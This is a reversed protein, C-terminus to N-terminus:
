HTKKEEIFLSEGNRGFYGLLDLEWQIRNGLHIQCYRKVTNKIYLVINIPRKPRRRRIRAKSKWDKKEGEKLASMVEDIWRKRPKGIKGKDDPVKCTIKRVNSHDIMSEM